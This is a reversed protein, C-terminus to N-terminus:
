KLKQPLIGDLIKSCKLLLSGLAEFSVALASLLSRPKESPVFRLVMEIVIAITTTSGEISSLFSSIKEIIELM